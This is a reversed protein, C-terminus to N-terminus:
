AAAFAITLEASTGSACCMLQTSDTKLQEREGPDVNLIQVAPAAFTITDTGNTVAYSFAQTTMALWRGYRDDTAVLKAEPDLTIMPKRSTIIGSIYGTANGSCPRLYLTNGLDLTMTDFCPTLAAITFTTSAARMPIITPYTPVLLTQDSAGQWLGEFTFSISILQGFTFNFVANGVAGSMLKRRGNEYLGITLTKVNAGPAEAVPSLTGTTNVFGCAALFVTAWAPVGGAGNGTMELTFTCTASRAGPVSPLHRFSGQIPRDSMELNAVINADLINYAAETNTLTEATGPTAEVKAALVSIRNLLTM